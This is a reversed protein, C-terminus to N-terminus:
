KVLKADLNINLRHMAVRPDLGPMDEYNWAFVDINERVLSILNEKKSSSLSESIFIPKPNAEDGMNIQTVKDETPPEHQEFRNDWLTNLHKIWPDIDSQMMEEDRGKLHSTLTM